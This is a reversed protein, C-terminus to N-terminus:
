QRARLFGNLRELRAKNEPTDLVAVVLPQDSLEHVVQPKNIGHREALYEIVLPDTIALDFRNSDLMKLLLLDTMAGHAKAPHAVFQAQVDDPYNYSSVYGIRNQSFLNEVSSFTIPSDQKSLVALHSYSVPASAVFGADVENPWAPFYGVYGPQRAVVRARKWPYYEVQLDIGNAELLTRLEQIANGQSSMDASSYPEWNLSTIKWVERPAPVAAGSVAWYSCSALLAVVAAGWFTRNM